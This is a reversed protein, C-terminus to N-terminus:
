PAGGPAMYGARARVRLRTDKTRVRIAHYSGDAPGPEFALLYQSQLDDCIRAVAAAIESPNRLLEAYGGSAKTLDDLLGSDVPVGRRTGMGIAYLMADSRRVVDRAGNIIQLRIAQRWQGM